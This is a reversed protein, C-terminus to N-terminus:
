NLGSSVSRIIAESLNTGLSTREQGSRVRPLAIRVQRRQALKVTLILLATRAALLLRGEHM